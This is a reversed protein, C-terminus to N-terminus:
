GLLQDYVAHVQSALRRASFEPARERGAAALRHRLSPDTGLRRLCGALADADGPAHLLGDLGDRVIEAPGGAASAVVAVGAAMGQVVVQGFPEPVTSSHVLVDSRALVDDVDELHGTFTVRGDLGLRHVQATLEESYSDEGFLAGGVVTARAGGDPFAKAFADLFVHQGKWPALRGISTVVLEGRDARPERMRAPECIPSGVIATPQRLAGLTGLTTASNAIVASPLWRAALRVLRVASMPLYDDAIRDRVHWVVPVGASRAAVGGYLASKLSNTHVIDPRLERIRRRLQWTAGASGAVARWVARGAPRVDARRVHAVPPALPLVEVTVGDGRLIDELPGTEGLVVHADVDMAPLLRALALEGGSRQACHDVFLVRRRPSGARDYIERHRGALAEFSFREAHRRCATPSAHRGAATELLASALADPDGAPVVTAGDLGAVAEPLGGVDSVVVPTGAALSELVILGFGELEITPVVSVDAARYATVLDTDPVRGLFRVQHRLGLETARRHLAASRSGTGVVVLTSGPHQAVVQAWAELLVDLGMRAELRRAVTAVFGDDPLGLSRRATPQDGPRFRELDVAPPVVHIRWPGVGYETRLLDAFAHSLVVFEDVRRYVTREVLRKLAAGARAGPAAVLSEEAWPGQFHAVIPRHRLSPLCLPLLSYLAFHSDVVAAGACQRRAVRAYRLLRAVLPRGSADAGCYRAPAGAAESVVVVRHDLGSRALAESLDRLYRNLGGPRDDFWEAGLLLAPGRLM